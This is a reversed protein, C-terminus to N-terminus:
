AGAVGESELLYVRVEARQPKKQRHRYVHLEDVQEDDGWIVGNCGDLISKAYNDVDGFTGGSIYLHIEVRLWGHLLGWHAAKAAWGVQEKYALYRKASTKVWKGKQTMRVAPVPRGEVTFAVREETM